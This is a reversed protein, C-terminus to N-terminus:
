RLAVYPGEFHLRFRILPRGSTGRILNRPSRPYMNMFNSCVVDKARKEVNADRTLITANQGEVQPPLSILHLVVQIVDNIRM